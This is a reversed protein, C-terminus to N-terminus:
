GDSAPRLRRWTRRVVNVRGARPAKVRGIWGGDLLYVFGDSDMRAEMGTHLWGDRLAHQTARPQSRYGLMTHAGQIVLEGTAGPPTERGNNRVQVRVGDVSTGISGLRHEQGPLTACALASAEIPGYSQLVECGFTSELRERQRPLLSTGSACLITRVSGVEAGASEMGRLLGPLLAPLLSLVTVHHESITRLIEDPEYSPAIALCAGAAVVANLGCTQGLPSLLPFSSLLTDSPTLRLVTSAMTDAAHALASHTLEAAAAGDYGASSYALVAVQDEDVEPWTPQRVEDTFIGADIRLTPIEAIAAAAEGRRESVLPNLLAAAAKQARLRDVLLSRDASPSLPLAICGALHVGYYAAAFERTNPLIM